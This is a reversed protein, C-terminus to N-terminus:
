FGDMIEFNMDNRHIMGAIQVDKQEFLNIQYVKDAQLRLNKADHLVSVIPKDFQTPHAQVVKAVCGNSLKVLCGVPFLSIASLMARMYADDLLGSKALELLKVVAHYPHLGLRHARNGVLAQYIDAIAVIKSYNHIIFYKRNKPYGSGNNREHHQYTVYAVSDPIGMVKELVYIGMMPHKQIEYWEDTSLKDTKLRIEKPILMMGVDALLGAEGVQVVQEESFGAASAISISLLCVRLAHNFLYEPHDDEIQTVNLIICEDTIFVKMFKQVIDRIETHSITSGRCLRYFLEEIDKLAAHYSTSIDAKYNDTRETTSMQRKSERLPKGKPKDNLPAELKKEVRRIAPSSEMIQIGRAGKPIEALPPFAKLNAEAGIWKPKEATNSPDSSVPQIPPSSASQSQSSDTISKKQLTLDIDPNVPEEVKLNLLKQLEQKEQNNGKPPALM